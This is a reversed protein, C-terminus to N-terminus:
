KEQCRAQYHRPRRFILLSIYIEKVVSERGEITPLCLEVLVFRALSGGVFLLFLFFVDDALICSRLMTIKVVANIENRNLTARDEGAGKSTSLLLDSSPSLSISDLFSFRIHPIDIIQLGYLPLLRPWICDIGKLIGSTSDKGLFQLLLATNVVSM